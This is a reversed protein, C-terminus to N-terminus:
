ILPEQFQLHSHRRMQTYKCAWIIAVLVFIFTIIAFVMKYYSMQCNEVNASPLSKGVSPLYDTFGFTVVNSCDGYHNSSDRARVCLAFGKNGNALERKMSVIYMEKSGAEKPRRMDGLEIDADTLAHAQMPSALLTNVDFSFRFDYSMAKGDDLNDGTATWNLQVTGDNSSSGTVMLDSIRAPPYIDNMKLKENISSIEFTGAMASRSIPHDLQTVLRRPTWKRESPPITSSDDDSIHSSLNREDDVEEVLKANKQANSVNVLVTYHGNTNFRTFYRSYVGDGAVIDAGAGNDFLELGIPDAMPRSVTALVALGTVPHSDKTVEAHIMVYPCKSNLFPVLEAHLIIASKNERSHTFASFYISQHETDLNHVQYRWNGTEATSRPCIRISKLRKNESYESSGRSFRIGSPSTVYVTPLGKIYRFVFTTNRGVSPDISFINSKSEGPFLPLIDSYLQVPLSDPSHIQYVIDYLAHHISTSKGHWPSFLSKNQAMIPSTVHEGSIDIVNSTPPMDNVGSRVGYERKGNTLVVVHTSTESNTWRPFRPTRRERRVRDDARHLKTDPPLIDKLIDLAQNESLRKERGKNQNSPVSIVVMRRKRSARVVTFTPNTQADTLSGPANTGNRFDDTESIVDWTSRHSCLRNHSNPAERNHVKYEDSVDDDCFDTVSTINQQDMISARIKQVRDPYLQYVCSDSITGTSPNTKCYSGTSSHVIKGRKKINCKVDEVKGTQVSFYFQTDGPIPHEDFVGWRFRAWQKVFYKDPTGYSPPLAPNLFLDSTLLINIGPQGCPSFSRTKATSRKTVNFHSIIIDGSTYSLGSAAGYSGTSWLSPVLITIDKFFARKRTATYLFRSSNRLIDKISDLLAVSEPVSEHIAVVINRYGNNELRIASTRIPRTGSAFGLLGWIAVAYLMFAM